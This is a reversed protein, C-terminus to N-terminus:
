WVAAIAPARKSPWACASSAAPRRISSSNPSIWLLKRDARGGGGCGGGAKRHGPKSGARKGRSGGRVGPRHRRAGSLSPLVAWTQTKEDWVEAAKLKISKAIKSESRWTAADDGGDDDDTPPSDPVLMPPSVCGGQAVLERSSIRVTTSLSSILSELEETVSRAAAGGHSHCPGASRIMAVARAPESATIDQIRTETNLALHRLQAIASQPTRGSPAELLQHRRSSCSANENVENGSTAASPELAAAAASPELGLRQLEMVLDIQPEPELFPDCRYGPAPLEVPGRAAAMTMMM